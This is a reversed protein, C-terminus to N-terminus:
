PSWGSCSCSCAGSCGSICSGHLGAQVALARAEGRTYAGCVSRPGDVHVVRSSSLLRAGVYALAFGFHGRELDNVLAMRKAARGMKRLLAVAPEPDLHHLFLSCTVVDFDRPLEDAFLDTTSFTVPTGRALAQERAIRIATESKDVGHIITRVGVRAAALSLAVPLDGSGTALDLIRLPESSAHTRALRLIPRLLIHVSRSFRNIRQLGELARAHEVRDLAPDDMVEPERCRKFM